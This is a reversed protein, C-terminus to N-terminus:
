QTLRPPMGPSMGPPTGPPGVVPQRAIAETKAVARAIAPDTDSSFWDAVEADDDGASHRPVDDVPSPEFRFVGDEGPAGL